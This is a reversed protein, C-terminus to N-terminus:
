AGNTDTLDAAADVHLGFLIHLPEDPDQLSIVGACERGHRAQSCPGQCPGASTLRWTQSNHRILTRDDRLRRLNALSTM